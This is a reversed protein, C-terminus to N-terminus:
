LGKRLAKAKLWHKEAKEPTNSKEYHRAADEHTAAARQIARIGGGKADQDWIKTARAFERAHDAHWKQNQRDKEARKLESAKNQLTKRTIGHEKAVKEDVSKKIKNVDRMTFSADAAVSGGRQGPRGAHGWFGRAM